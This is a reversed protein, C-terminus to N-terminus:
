GGADGGVTHPRPDPRAPGDSPGPRDPPAVGECRPAGRGLLLGRVAGLLEEVAFPKALFAAHASGLGELPDEGAYGSVFLVPLDTETEHLLRALEPGRMGPMIVDTVLLDLPGSGADVIARAQAADAAEIVEFGAHGLIRRAITRVVADDDVLLIRAGEVPRGPSAPVPAPSPMASALPLSIVMATGVSGTDIEIRGGSQRVIGHVMALGLGTGRGMEKTTFFPEFVHPLVDPDIGSGTDEVRLVVENATPEPAGQVAPASELGATAPAIRTVLRVTGGGPMSERANLVLHLLVEALQGRDAMVLPPQPGADVVLDIAGGVLRRLTPVQEAIVADLNVVEPQLVLRRAFALLQHTLESAQASSRLIQGAAEHAPSGPPLEGLLETGYGRIATLLNNFDHAIGGALRGTAELRQAERLQEELRSREARLRVEATIDRGITAIGTIVGRADRLPVVTISLFVPRGRYSREIEFPGVTEGAAVRATSARIGEREDPPSIDYATKGRFSEDWGYMRTAAGNWGLIRGDTTQSVIALEAAELTAAFRDKDTEARQEATIDETVSDYWAVAGHEDFHARSTFRTWVTAGDRRRGEIRSVVERGQDLEAVIRKLEDIDAVLDRARVGVMAAKDPYGYMHVYADNVEVLVGKPDTRAIGVPLEALLGRVRAAADERERDSQWALAFLVTTVAGVGATAV